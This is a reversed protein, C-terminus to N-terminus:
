GAGAPDFGIKKMGRVLSPGTEPYDHWPANGVALREGVSAVSWHAGGGLSGLEDWGVPVSVGLGARARASWASVTTAGWGNRLPDIYVRGVRHGAGSRAVFKGPLVRAAHEVVARAFGRAAEWGHRRAHPVVLHLGKGGSTKLWSPLGLEDLLARLLSAAERVQEFAVGEGPDLDFVLRDPRDIRRVTANWTHFEVVNMQVASLLAAASGIGLLPAGGPDLAPDLVDVGPLATRGAHRQFFTRGGVGRPARLLSLPRGALHPLLLPAAARYYDALGGKTVGSEEDIVREPHSIRPEGPEAAPGARAKRSGGRGARESAAAGRRAPQTADGGGPSSADPRPDAAPADADAGSVRVARERRVGAAPKDERLGHFVAHRVRGAPTWEAFSVEAVCEPRLWHPPSRRATGVKAPADEFPSAETALPRLRRALEALTDRDFGTGVSGAYRLRGAEDFVGLLLAGLAERAGSPDTWGGVVFEQRRRSKLKIWDKSRGGVYAGDARKGMLGELGGERATELLRAPEGQLAESFRLPGGAPARALLAGLRARREALPLGRLDAGDLFPLDFAVYRVAEAASGGDFANQLANFDPVGGEGAVVLEGDVWASAAGLARLADVVRPLRRSWDKGNRTVCRVDDGDVRALVRYGDLKAEWLWEGEAPPADVLTALMPEISAPLPAAGRRAGAPRSPGAGAGTGADARADARGPGGPDGAEDADQAKAKAPKRPAPKAARATGAPKGTAPERGAAGGAAAKAADAKRAAKRAGAEKAATKKSASAEKAAAKRALAKKGASKRAVSKKAAKAAAPRLVSGPEAQLVDFDAEARAEDDRSKILLWSPKAGRPRTRVLVWRGRLKEGDLEFELKGDRLGAHPDGLPKWRGRDWVIVTGAGYHGEPITGEFGGYDLPHDEVEVAMRRVSPDLSPGKPVAWSKLTGDLELRFDYHLHSADHKQVM